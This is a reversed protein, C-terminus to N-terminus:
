KNEEKWQYGHDFRKHAYIEEEIWSRVGGGTKTEWGCSCTVDYGWAGRMTKNYRIKEEGAYVFWKISAKTTSPVLKMSMKLGKLKTSSEVVKAVQKAVLCFICSDGGYLLVLVV